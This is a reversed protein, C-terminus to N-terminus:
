WRNMAKYIKDCIIKNPFIKYSMAIKDLLTSYAQNLACIYIYVKTCLKIVNLMVHGDLNPILVSNCPWLRYKQQPQKFNRRLM